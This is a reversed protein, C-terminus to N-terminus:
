HVRRYRHANRRQTQEKERTPDTGSNKGALRVIQIRRIYNEGAKEDSLGTLKRAVLHVAGEASAFSSLFRGLAEYHTKDTSPPAILGLAQAAAHKILIDESM